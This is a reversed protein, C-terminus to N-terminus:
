PNFALALLTFVPVIFFFTFFVLVPVALLVTRNERFIRIM